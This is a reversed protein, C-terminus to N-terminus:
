AVAKQSEEEEGEFFLSHIFFIAVGIFLAADAINFSPWSSMGFNEILWPKLTPSNTYFHLFDTVTQKHIRDIANGVAGSAILGLAASLMADGKPLQKFMSFIVGLAIVTFSLFLYHRYEWDALFSFAAGPNQAHVIDFFGPIIEIHETRYDVNFYVWLKTAQDLALGLIFTVLFVITKRSM